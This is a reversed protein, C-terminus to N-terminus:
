VVDDNFQCVIPTIPGNRLNAVEACCRLVEYPTGLIFSQELSRGFDIEDNTNRGPLTSGHARTEISHNIGDLALPLMESDLVSNHAHKPVISRPLLWLELGVFSIKCEDEM